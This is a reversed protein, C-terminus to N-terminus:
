LHFSLIFIGYSQLSYAAQFIHNKHNTFGPRYLIRSRLKSTLFEVLIIRQYIYFVKNGHLTVDSFITAYRFVFFVKRQINKRFICEEILSELKM